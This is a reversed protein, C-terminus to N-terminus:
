LIWHSIFVMHRNTALHTHDHALIDSTAIAFGDSALDAADHDARGHTGADPGRETISRLCQQHVLGNSLRQRGWLDAGAFLAPM